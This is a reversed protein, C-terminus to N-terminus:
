FSPTHTESGQVVGLKCSKPRISHLLGGLSVAISPSQAVISQLIHVEDVFCLFSVIGQCLICWGM